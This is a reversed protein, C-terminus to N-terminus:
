SGKGGEAFPNERGELPLVVTFQSGEGMQSQVSIRGGHARVIEEAIALGLGSGPEQANSRSKDVQYFRDFIKHIEQEPIGKGTDAITIRVEKGAREGRIDVQGGAPTYTLANDIINSFVQSLRDPDGYILPLDPLDLNIQVGKKEAQVSMKEVVRDCLNHIDIDSQTLTVTGADYRALELLDRVLRYMRDAEDRIVQASSKIESRTNVTGDLIAQAFGQISTLPTKLEHSVNAVFDRQSRQSSKVKEVMDNFADVLSRVEEPGKLPISQFEGDAVHQTALTIDKIPSSIWRSMLYALILAFILALTGARIFPPLFDDRLIERMQPSRLIRLGGQRPAAVMLTRGASLPQLNYLWMNNESDRTMDRSPVQQQFDLRNFDTSQQGSDYIIEERGEYILIRIGFQDSITVLRQELAPLRVGGQLYLRKILKAVVDLRQYAQRDVVPNRVVYVFIGLAIIALIVVVLAAYTLWLRSQLSTFM